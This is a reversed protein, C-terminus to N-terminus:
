WLGTRMRFMSAWSSYISEAWMECCYNWLLCTKIVQQCCHLFFVFLFLGQFTPTSIERVSVESVNYRDFVTYVKNDRIWKQFHYFHAKKNRLECWCSKCHPIEHYLFEDFIFILLLNSSLGLRFIYREKYNRAM